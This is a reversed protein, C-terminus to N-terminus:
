EAEVRAAEVHAEHVPFAAGKVALMESIFLDSRQSIRDRLQYLQSEYAVRLCLVKGIEKSQLRAGIEDSEHPCRHLRGPLAERFQTRCFLRVEEPEDRGAQWEFVAERCPQAFAVEDLAALLLDVVEKKEVEAFPLLAHRGEGQAIETDHLHGSEFIFEFRSEFSTLDGPRGIM